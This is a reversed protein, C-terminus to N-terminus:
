LIIAHSIFLSCEKSIRSLIILFAISGFRNPINKSIFKMKNSLVLYFSYFIEAFTWSKKLQILGIWSERNSTGREEILITSDKM